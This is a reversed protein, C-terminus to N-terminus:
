RAPPRGLCYKSDAELKRQRSWGRILLPFSSTANRGMIIEQYVVIVRALWRFGRTSM